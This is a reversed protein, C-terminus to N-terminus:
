TKDAKMLPLIGPLRVYFTTGEGLRSTVNISGQHNQVINYSIFLGLGSGNEKTSVFPEFIKDLMGAEIGAGTDSLTITVNQEDYTAQITLTDGVQMADKANLILNLFVQELQDPIGYVPPLQGVEVTLQMREREFLKRSLNVVSELVQPLQVIVLEASDEINRPRTFQSLRHVIRRIRNASDITEQIDQLQVPQGNELDEAIHELNILIPLLPNNIEHALSASLRGISALKESMVLMRQAQQLENTRQEVMEELHDAYRTKVEYLMANNLALAAQRALGEFLRVNADEYPERNLLILAGIVTEGQALLCGMGAEYGAFPPPDDSWWQQVAQQPSWQAMLQPDLPPPTVMQGDYTCAQAHAEVLPAEASSTEDRFAQDFIYLAALQGALLDFALKLVLPALDDPRLQQNFSESARLLWAQERMRQKLQRQLRQHALKNRVRAMLELPEVPKTLYDEAGLQLGHEIDSPADKATIFIVATNAFNPDERLAHMVAYGDMGGPMMIDLLILDPHHQRALDLAQQGSNASYVEYGQSQFLRMVMEAAPPHDDVVLIRATNQHNIM